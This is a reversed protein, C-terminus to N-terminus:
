AFFVGPKQTQRLYDFFLIKVIAADIAKNNKKACQSKPILDNKIETDTTMCKVFHIKTGTNLDAEMLWITPLNSPKIGKGKKVLSVNAIGM